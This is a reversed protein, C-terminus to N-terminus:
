FLYIQCIDDYIQKLFLFHLSKNESVPRFKALFSSTVDSVLINCWSLIVVSRTMLYQLYVEQQMNFAGHQAALLYESTQPAALPLFKLSDGGYLPM